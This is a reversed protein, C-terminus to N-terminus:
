DRTGPSQSLCLSSPIESSRGHYSESSPEFGYLVPVRDKPNEHPARPDCEILLSSRPLGWEGIMSLQHGTHPRFNQRALFEPHRIKRCCGTAEEVGSRPEDGRVPPGQFSSLSAM